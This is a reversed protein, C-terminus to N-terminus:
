VTQSHDRGRTTSEGCESCTSTELARYADTEVRHEVVAGRTSAPAPGATKVLM